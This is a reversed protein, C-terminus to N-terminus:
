RHLGCAGTFRGYIKVLSSPAIVWFVAMKMSSEALVQFRVYGDTRVDMNQGIYLYGVTLGAM